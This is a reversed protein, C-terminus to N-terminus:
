SKVELVDTFARAKLLPTSLPLYYATLVERSIRTQHQAMAQQVVSWPLVSVRSLPSRPSPGHVVCLVCLVGAAQARDMEAFQTDTIISLPLSAESTYKVEMYCARGGKLYGTFDVGASGKFKRQGEDIIVQTHRKRLEGLGLAACGSVPHNLMKDIVAEAHAGHEQRTRGTSPKAPPILNFTKM